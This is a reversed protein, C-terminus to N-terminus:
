AEEFQSNYLSAYFGDKKLLEEHNGQEVINGENMVLILDVDRITSLRHAIIFSTRGEMLKDMAKVIIKETRTDVSSTAEDLILIKPDALLARAITLLQKQGSSLNNSEEDLVMQYGDVCTKIFHDVHAAVAAEEVEYDTADLKGCRINEMITDHYLWTDQLVMGFAKRLDTRSYSRTDVGDIKISGSNIDYFRMLLKVITTKGAGTPGVIAVKQGPKIDASFNKIIIKDPNYGFDVNEFTIRGTTKEENFEMLNDFVEKEEEEDLFEFVRESAAATQQLVNSINALQTIPQTFNRLYQTFAQINGVEIKGNIALYGGLICVAVYGLNGIFAMIPQMLGSFYQSKWASSYLIDNLENFTKVSENEKNFVKVVTHGSYMEEVHGNIHGLYEQQSRFYRQSFKVVVMIFLVSVPLILLSVLTMPISISIMMVLTGILTTVSTVIQSLVQTLNQSITDVDNTIRSLVEGHTQKDFYKIPLKNLKLSIDKRFRYTVNNSVGTMIFSQIYTFLSAVLYLLVMTVAIKGVYLFDIGSTSGSIKGIVGEFIKTTAKGLIKPGVITFVTSAIAFLVVLLIKYKYKKLYSLLKKMTSKFNKPKETAMSAGHRGMRRGGAM